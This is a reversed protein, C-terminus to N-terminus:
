PAPGTSLAGRTDASPPLTALAADEARIRVTLLGANLVTFVLSTIWASHVLPLAIGELVVAVYNPHRVWRYPGGTVPAM